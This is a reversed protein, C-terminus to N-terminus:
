QKIYAIRRNQFRGEETTNNGVPVTDGYGKTSFSDTKVGAATFMAKVANARAESLTLNAASDGTNDTHGAIEIKVGSKACATVAPIAIKLAEVDKAPIDSSGTAFNIVYLNLASSLSDANCTSNDLAKIAEVFKSNATLTAKESDFTTAAVVPATQPMPPHGEHPDKQCSKFWLAALALLLLPLLWKWWGGCKKSKKNGTQEDDSFFNSLGSLASTFQSTIGGFFGALSGWGLWELVKEPLSKELHTAQSAIMSTFAHPSMKGNVVQNKLLGFIATAAVALLSKTGTAPTDTLGAVHEGLATAKDGFLFGLAKGGQEGLKSVGSATGLLGTLNSIHSDVSSDTVAKYLATAGDKTSAKNLVGGLLTPLITALATKGQEQNLGFLDGAKSLLIPGLTTQAIELLNISM